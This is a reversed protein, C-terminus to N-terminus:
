KCDISILVNMGNQSQGDGKIIMMWVFTIIFLVNCSISSTMIRKNPCSRILNKNIKLGVLDIWGDLQVCVNV